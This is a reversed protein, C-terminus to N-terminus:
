ASRNSLGGSFKVAAPIESRHLGMDKLERDSMASLEDIAAQERRWTTYAALWRKLTAVLKRPWFQDAIGRPPAPANCITSM